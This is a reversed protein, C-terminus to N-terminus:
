KCRIIISGKIGNPAYANVTARGTGVVQAVGKEDVKVVASNDTQWVINDKDKSNSPVTYVCLRFKDGKKVTVDGKGGKDVGVEIETIDSEGDFVHVVNGNKDTYVDNGGVVVGLHIYQDGSVATVTTIGNGIASVTGDPSVVAVTENASSWKIESEPANKVKVTHHGDIELKIYDESVSMKVDDGCSCLLLLSLVSLALACIRKKM